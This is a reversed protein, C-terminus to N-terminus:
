WGGSEDILGAEIARLHLWYSLALDLMGYDGITKSVTEHQRVQKLIHQLDNGELIRLRGFRMKGLELPLDTLLNNEIDFTSLHEFLGFLSQPVNRFLNFSLDFMELNKLESIAKPLSSLGNNSLSLSKLNRLQGIEEPLSTIQNNGLHLWTLNELQTIHIPFELFQNHRLNLDDLHQLSSISLPLDDLANNELNLLLLNSLLFLEEPLATLKNDSLFLEKTNKLAGIESPIKRLELGSLDVIEHDGLIAAQIMLKAQQYGSDLLRMDLSHPDYDRGYKNIFTNWLTLVDDVPTENELLQKIVVYDNHRQIEHDFNKLKQNALEVFINDDEDGIVRELRKKARSYYGREFHDIASAYINAVIDLDDPPLPRVAQQIVHPKSMTEYVGQEIKLIVKLMPPSDTIDAIQKQRLASIEQPINEICDEISLPLLPKNLALAYEVETLCYESDLSSKSLVFIFCDCAEINDLISEWWDTGVVLDKDIWPHHATNDKLSQWLEYVWTANKRSYSLFLKM